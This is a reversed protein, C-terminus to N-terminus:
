KKTINNIYTKHLFFLKTKVSQKRKRPPWKDSKLWRAFITMTNKNM